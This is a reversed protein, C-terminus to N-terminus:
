RRAASTGRPGARPSPRWRFPIGLRGIEFCTAYVEGPALRAYENRGVELAVTEGSRRDRVHLRYRTVSRERTVFKDVIPGRYEVGGRSPPIANVALVYPESLLLALPYLMVFQVIPQWARRDHAPISTRRLWIGAVITLALPMWLSRVVWVYGDISTEIRVLFFIAGILFVLVLLNSVRAMPM